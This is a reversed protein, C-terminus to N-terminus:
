ESDEDTVYDTPVEGEGDGNPNDTFNQQTGDIAPESPEVTDPTGDGDSDITPVSRDPFINLYPLVESMIDKFLRSSSSTSYMEGNPNDIVCYCVLEPLDEGVYGIFSYVYKNESRPLKQATGTKGGITYGDIKAPTGTGADVCMVLGDRILSSTEETVTQKIVTSGVEKVIGGQANVIEKVIHPQYYNGGNIVSCFGTALQVMTVNFSQGFSCIALDIPKMNEATYLLGACSAEGPMDIGTKYGFNFRAQYGAFLESGLATGMQMLADNCSYAIAQSVNITGHGSHRHCKVTRNGVVEFGDCVFTQETSIKGEEIASAVTFPKFTSGPEFTDSICFNRWIENMANLEDEETMADLEEQTYFGTLDRPNNLDYSVDTAMAYIEGSNPDMVIVGINEPQYTEKYSAIYKEVITQINFDITSVVSNGDKAQKSVYEMINESNVYGYKRGDIGDLEDDYYEEIGWTGVNGAATFGLVHCALSSYPYKRQYETEFWVGMINSNKQEQKELFPSITDYTMKKEYVVYSSEKKEMILTRLVEKDYGFCETLADITPELYEEEALIIKPDLILNYVKVSTALTVGNRDLIDGRKFPVVTNSYGQQDLVKITYKEGNTSNIRLVFFALGLLAIAIILLVGVLMRQMRKTFVKKVKRVNGQRANMRPKENKKGTDSM